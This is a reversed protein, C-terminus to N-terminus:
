PVEEGVGITRFDVNRHARGGIGTLVVLVAQRGVAGGNPFHVGVAAALEDEGVSDAVGGRHAPRRTGLRQPGHHILPTAQSVIRRGVIQRAHALFTEVSPRIIEPSSKLLRSDLFLARFQQAFRQCRIIRQARMHRGQPQHEVRRRGERSFVLANGEDAEVSRRSAGAHDTILDHIDGELVPVSIEVRLGCETGEKAEKIDKDVHKLSTIRGAAIEKGERMLRFLVRKIVGDMVKGGIIQEKKKTLFVGRVELHGVIKEEEVPEIMGKLLRDVEELLEYVISYQLVKVGEREATRLVDNSVPANFSLVIGESAAAMMVDSESVSGVAAHIVKASVGGETVQRSLAEQIAELSGQADAKLVIKLQTLKGESIRSVLDAFSRRPKDAEKALIVDLLSRAEKESPVVQVIDGVQPVDKLGSM